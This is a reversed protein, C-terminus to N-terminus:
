GALHHAAEGQGLGARAGVGPAHLRGGDFVAVATGADVKSLEVMVDAYPLAGLNTGGYEEPVTMGYFGLAGLEKLADHNVEQKEDYEAAVPALTKEAFKRAMDRVLLHEESFTFDM